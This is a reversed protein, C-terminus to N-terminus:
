SPAPPMACPVGHIVRLLYTGAPFVVNRDGAMWRSRMRAYAIRFERFFALEVLRRVLNRCAVIPRLKRRPESSTARTKPPLAPQYGLPVRDKM